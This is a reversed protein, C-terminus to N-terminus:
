KRSRRYTARNQWQSGDPHHGRMDVTMTQGDGSLTRRVVILPANNKYAVTELVDDGDLRMNLSDIGMGPAPIARGDPHGLFADESRVGNDDVWTMELLLQQEKRSITYVGDRPPRGVTYNCQQPILHWVGVFREASPM